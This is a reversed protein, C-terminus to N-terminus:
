NVRSEIFLRFPNNVDNGLKHCLRKVINGVESGWVRQLLHVNTLM